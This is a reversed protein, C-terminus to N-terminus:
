NRGIIYKAGYYWLFGSKVIRKGIPQSKDTKTFFYVIANIFWIGSITLASLVLFIAVFAIISIIITIIKGIPSKKEGVKLKFTQLEENSLKSVVGILEIENNSLNPENMLLKIDEDSMDAKENIIKKLIRKANESASKFKKAQIELSAKPKEPLEPRVKVDSAIKINNGM